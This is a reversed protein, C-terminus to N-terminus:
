DSKEEKKENKDGDSSASSDRNNDLGKKWENYNETNWGEGTNPYIGSVSGNLVLLSKLLNLM